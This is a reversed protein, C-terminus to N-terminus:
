EKREKEKLIMGKGRMSSNDMSMCGKQGINKTRIPRLESTKSTFKAFFPFSNLQLLLILKDLECSRNESLHQDVAVEQRTVKTVWVPHVSGNIQQRCCCTGHDLQHRHRHHQQARRGEGGYGGDQRFPTSRDEPTKSFNCRM